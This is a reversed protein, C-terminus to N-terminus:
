DDVYELLDGPQVRLVRCMNNILSESVGAHGNLVKSLHVRHVGIEDAFDSVRSYGADKILHKVMRRKILISM